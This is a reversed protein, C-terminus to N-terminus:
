LYIFRITTLIEHVMMIINYKTWTEPYRLEQFTFTRELIALELPLGAVQGFNVLAVFENFLIETM